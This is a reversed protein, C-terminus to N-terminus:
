GGHRRWVVLGFAVHLVGFGLALLASAWAAPAFMTAAGLLTFCAGMAPIAPVSHAGGALAAVGYLLLWLGPLLEVHGARVLAASVVAGALVPPAFALAFRRGAAGLLPQGAARSKQAMTMLGVLLAATAAGLWAGLWSGVTGPEPRLGRTLGAAVLGIAGMAVMGRGPVATFAATAEMTDRIYRLSQVAEDHLAPPRPRTAPM